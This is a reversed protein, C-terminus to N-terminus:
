NNDDIKTLVIGKKNFMSQLVTEGRPNIVNATFILSDGYSLTDGAINKSIGVSTAISKL